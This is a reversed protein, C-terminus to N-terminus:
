DSQRSTRGCEEEGDGEKGEEDDNGREESEVEEEEEEEEEGNRSRAQENAIERKQVMKVKTNHIKHGSAM